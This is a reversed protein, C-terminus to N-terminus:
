RQLEELADCAAHIDVVTIVPPPMFTLVNRGPRTKGSPFRRDELGELVAGRRSPPDGAGAASADGDRPITRSM